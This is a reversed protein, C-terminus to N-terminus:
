STSRDDSDRYRKTYERSTRAEDRITQQIIRLDVHIKDLIQGLEARTIYHKAFDFQRDDVKRVWYSIAGLATSFLVTMIAFLVEYGIELM